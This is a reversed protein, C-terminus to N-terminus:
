DFIDAEEVKPLSVVLFLCKDKGANEIQHKKKQPVDVSEHEKLHILNKDLLFSAEGQLIFFFQFSKRHHHIESQGLPPIEEIKVSLENKEVLQWFFHDKAWEVRLVNSRSKQM